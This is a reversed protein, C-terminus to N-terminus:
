WYPRVPVSALMPQAGASVTSAEADNPRAICVNCGGAVNNPPGFVSAYRGCADGRAIASAVGASYLRADSNCKHLGRIPGACIVQSAAAANMLMRVENWVGRAFAAKMVSRNAVSGIGQEVETPPAHRERNSISSPDMPM